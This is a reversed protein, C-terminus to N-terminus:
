SVTNEGRGSFTDALRMAMKKVLATAVNANKSRFTYPLKQGLTTGRGTSPNWEAFPLRRAVYFRVTPVDWGETEEYTTWSSIGHFELETRRRDLRELRLRVEPDLRRTARYEIENLQANVTKM